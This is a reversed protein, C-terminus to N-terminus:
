SILEMEVNKKVHIKELPIEMMANGTSKLQASIIVDMEM